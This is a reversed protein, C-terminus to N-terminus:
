EDDQGKLEALTSEIKDITIVCLADILVDREYVDSPIDYRALVENIEDRLWNALPLKYEHRKIGVAMVGVTKQADLELIKGSAANIKDVRTADSYEASCPYALKGPGGPTDATDCKKCVYDYHSSDRSELDHSPHYKKM